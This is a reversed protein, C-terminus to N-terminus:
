SRAEPLGRQANALPGPWWNWDNLISMTAPVLLSRVIFTDFLVAFVMYFSIQHLFPEDSFLLGSFAVAMIVGAATIIRGTRALGLVISDRTAHGARRYEMIRTILFIDYDLSIGVVISFSTLPTIYVISHMNEFGEFGTWALAGHQYTLTTFGYVWMVTLAISTVSRLPILVSRFALMLFVFVIVGTIGIMKPFAHNVNDVVDVTDAGIGVYFISMAHKQEFDTAYARADDLWTKGAPGTPDYSPTYIFQMVTSNIPSAPDNLFSCAAFGNKRCGPSPLKMFDACTWNREYMTTLCFEMDQAKVPTPSGISPGAFEDMAVPSNPKTYRVLGQIADQSADWMAYRDASNIIPMSRNTPVLLIQFPFLQGYGFEAGMDKYAKTVDSHKPLYYINESTSKYNFACTDFPITLFVCVIPVLVNAPYSTIGTGLRAWLSHEVILERPPLPLTAGINSASGEAYATGLKIVPGVEQTPDDKDLLARREGRGTPAGGQGVGDDSDEVDGGLDNVVGNESGGGGGRSAEEWVRGRCCALLRQAWLRPRPPCVAGQDLCKEFFRPFTLLLVPALTLNHFLVFLILLSCGIGLSRMLSLDFFLLGAFCTALTLGSVAITHGATLLVTCVIEEPNSVGGAAQVTLLEEQYRTLLFLSYDISMAIALSMMLSSAASYVSMAFTVLFMAGFGGALSCVLCLLPVVLLRASGLIYALAVVALPLVILDMRALDHMAADVIVTTFAADGLCTMDYEDTDTRQQVLPVQKKLWKAFAISGDTESESLTITIFTAKKDPSVMGKGAGQSVQELTFYGEYSLVNSSYASVEEGLAFTFNKLSDSLVPQRADGFGRVIYLVVCSSYKSGPFLDALANRAAMAQSDGPPTFDSNTANVFQSALVALGCTVLVQLVLLMWRRRHLFGVYARVRAAVKGKKEPPSSSEDDDGVKM